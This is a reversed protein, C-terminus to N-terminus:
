FELARKASFTLDAHGDTRPAMEPFIGGFPGPDLDFGIPGFGRDDGDTQCTFVVLTDRGTRVLGQRPLVPNMQILIAAVAAGHAHAGARDVANLHVGPGIKGQDAICTLAFIATNLPAGRLSYLFLFLFRHLGPM